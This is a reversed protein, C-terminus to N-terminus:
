VSFCQKALSTNHTITFFLFDKVKQSFKTPATLEDLIESTPYFFDHPITPAPQTAAIHEILTTYDHKGLVCHELIMKGYHLTQNTYYPNPPIGAIEFSITQMYAAVIQTTAHKTADNKYVFPHTKLFDPLTTIYQRNIGM